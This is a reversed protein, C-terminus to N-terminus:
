WYLSNILVVWRSTGRTQIRTRIESYFIRPSLYYMYVASGVGIGSLSYVRFQSRRQCFPLRRGAGRCYYSNPRSYAPGEEGFKGRFLFGFDEPDAAAIGTDRFCCDEIHARPIDKDMAVDGVDDVLAVRTEGSDNAICDFRELDIEDDHTTGYMRQPCDSM